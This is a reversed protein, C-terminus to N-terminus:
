KSLLNYGSPKRSLCSPRDFFRVNRHSVCCLCKLNLNREAIFINIKMNEQLVLNKKMKEEFHIQQQSIKHLWLSNKRHIFKQEQKEIHGLIFISIADYSRIM